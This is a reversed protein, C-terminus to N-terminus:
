YAVEATHVAAVWRVNDDSGTVKTVLADHDDDAEVAITWGTSDQDWGSTSFLTLSTTGGDNEIIGERRFAASDGGDSRAAVLIYFIMTRGSAVTLRRSSGDLYLETQTADSTANRLVYLSAQADGAAAFQGSAYAMQGYLSAEAQYGGPVTAYYDSATNSKGGGVTSAQSGSATNSEGGGVTATYSAENSKGGGVTAYNGSATNSEGGGVTARTGSAQNDYGGGVTTRTGSAQNDYGGGVTAYSNSATNLYGGGVTADEGSATNQHGGGVTSSPADSTTGADDGAQNRYGGGVTGYDDTVSNANVSSAGGGGIIAGVVGSTVSNDSHGGIVNPSTANPELRLGSGDTDITLSVGGTAQVMFQDAATSSFDADTSDAWVFAGQHNAKARRGAAFSYNGTADNDYGGPATANSGTANNQYGGGVTAYQGTATNAAGGGVTASEDSARNFFGGGVTAYKANTTDGDGNGAQNLFCGGGVTGYDDTVSNALGSQGGGGITAGAVGSTVSNGSYGGVVNPSTAHPELRLAATNSVALTLSIEDTTGLFNTGYTTGSNGTIVWADVAHLAYPAPTLATRPSITTYSGEADAKVDIELWRADGTFADSGFDLEVTFLGDSVTEDDKVVESGVQSGDSAADYLRFKFDYTGNAAGGGDELYGQYTFATGVPTDALAILSVFLALGVVALGITLGLMSLKRIMKKGGKIPTRGHVMQMNRDNDDPSSGKYFTNKTNM